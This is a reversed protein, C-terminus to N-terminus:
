RNRVGVGHGVLFNERENLVVEHPFTGGFVACVQDKLHWCVHLDLLRVHVLRFTETIRRLVTALKGAKTISTPKGVDLVTTAVFGQFEQRHRVVQFVGPALFNPFFTVGLVVVVVGNFDPEGLGDRFVVVPHHTYGDREQILVVRLLKLNNFESMSIVTLIQSDIAFCRVEAYKESVLTLILFTVLILSTEWKYDLAMM